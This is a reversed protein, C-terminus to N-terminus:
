ARMRMMTLYFPSRPGCAQGLAWAGFIGLLMFGESTLFVLDSPADHLVAFDALSRPAFQQVIFEIVQGFAHCWTSRNNRQVQWRMNGRDLKKAASKDAAIALVCSLQKNLLDFMRFLWWKQDRVYVGM